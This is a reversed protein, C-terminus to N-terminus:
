GSRVASLVAAIIDHPQQQSLIFTVHSMAACEIRRDRPFCGTSRLAMEM